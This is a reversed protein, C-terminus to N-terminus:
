LAISPGRLIGGKLYSGDWIIYRGCSKPGSIYDDNQITEPKAEFLSCNGEKAWTFYNCKSMGKCVDQCNQVVISETNNLKVGTYQTNM